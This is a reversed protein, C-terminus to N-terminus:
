LAAAPPDVVRGILRGPWAAARRPPRSASRGSVKDRTPFPLSLTANPPDPSRRAAAPSAPAAFVTSGQATRTRRAASVDDEAVCEREPFDAAGAEGAAARRRGQGSPPVRATRERGSVLDRTPGGRARQTSLGALPPSWGVWPHSRG